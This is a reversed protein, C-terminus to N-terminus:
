YYHGYTCRYVPRAYSNRVTFQEPERNGSMMALDCIAQMDRASNLHGMADFGPWLSSPELFDTM